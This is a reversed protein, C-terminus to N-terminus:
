SRSRRGPTYSRMSPEFPSSVRGRRRIPRRQRQLRISAVPLRTSDIAGPQNGHRPRRAHDRLAVQHRRVDDRRHASIGARDPAPWGSWDAVGPVACERRRHIRGKKSAMTKLDNNYKDLYAIGHRRAVRRAAAAAHRCGDPHRAGAHRAGHGGDAGVTSDIQANISPGVISNLDNAGEMLLVLDPHTESVMRPSGDRDEWANRGGIGANFVSVSQASYRTALLSQLKFPYSQSIGADLARLMVPPSDVGYTMSDGFALVKSIRLTAPTAPPPPPPPSTPPQPPPTVAGRSRDAFRRLRALFGGVHCIRASASLSNGDFCGHGILIACGNRRARFEASVVAEACRAARTDRAPSPEVIWVNRYITGAISASETGSRGMPAGLYAYHPSPAYVPREADGGGVNYLTNTGAVGGERCPGSRSNESGGRSKWYYTPRRTRARVGFPVADDTDPEYSAARTTRGYLVRFTIANPPFGGTGRYQIDVRYRNTIYDDQGEQM